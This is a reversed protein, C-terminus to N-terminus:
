IKTKTKEHEIVELAKLVINLDIDNQICDLLSEQLKIDLSAIKGSLEILKPSNTQQMVFRLRDSIQHEEEKKKFLEDMTINGKIFDNFDEDRETNRNYIEKGMSPKFGRNNVQIEIVM